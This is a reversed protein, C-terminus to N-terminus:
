GGWLGSYLYLVLLAVGAVAGIVGGLLTHLGRRTRRYGVVCGILFGVLTFLQVLNM